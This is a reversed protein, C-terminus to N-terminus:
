LNLFHIADLTYVTRVYKIASIPSDFGLPQPLLQLRPHPPGPLFSSSRSGQGMRSETKTLMDAGWLAFPQPSIVSSECRGYRQGWLLWWSKHDEDRHLSLQWSLGPAWVVPQGQGHMEISMVPYSPTSKNRLSPTDSDKQGRIDWLREWGIGSTERGLWSTWSSAALFLWQLIRTRWCM